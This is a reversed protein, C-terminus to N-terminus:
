PPLPVLQPRYFTAHSYIIRRYGNRHAGVFEGFFDRPAMDETPADHLTVRDVMVDCGIEGAIRFAHKVADTM